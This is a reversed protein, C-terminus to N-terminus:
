NYLKYYFMSVLLKKDSLPLMGELLLTQSAGTDRLITIPSSNTLNDDISVSGQSLYPKYNDM